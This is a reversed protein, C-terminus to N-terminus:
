DGREYENACWNLSLEVLAERASPHLTSSGDATAPVTVLGRVIDIVSEYSAGGARLSGIFRCLATRVEELANRESRELHSLATLVEARAAVADRDPSPTSSTLPEAM